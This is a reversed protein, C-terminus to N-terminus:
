NYTKKRFNASALPKIKWNTPSAPVNTWPSLCNPHSGFSCITSKHSGYIALVKSAGKLPKGCDSAPITDVGGVCQRSSPQPQLESVGDCHASSQLMRVPGSSVYLSLVPQPWCLASSLSQPKWSILFSNRDKDRGVDLLQEWSFYINLKRPRTGIGLKFYILSEVIIPTTRPPKNNSM